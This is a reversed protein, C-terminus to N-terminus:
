RRSQRRVTPIGTGCSTAARDARLCIGAWASFQVHRLRENMGPGVRHARDAEGHRRQRSAEECREYAADPNILNDCLLGVVLLGGCLDIVVDRTTDASVDISLIVDVVKGDQAFLRQAALVRPDIVDSTEM